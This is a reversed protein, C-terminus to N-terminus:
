DVFPGWAASSISGSSTPIIQQNTGDVNVLALNSGSVYLIQVGNASFSPSLDNPGRTLLQDGGGGLNTLAISYAGGRMSSNVLKLGDPSIAGSVNQSGNFTIRSAGGGGLGARYIQPSGGRDSTFIIGSGNPFFYPETDIEPSDTIQRASDGGNASILFINSLGSRSLAVALQSGDPSWAPASNNGHFNAAVTRGGTALNQVYVVPKGTEFSVYALKQGDPSWKPSIISSNSSAVVQAGQGDADAVYLQNGAVYAVRTSFIGRVGTQNEYIADAVRHAQRRLNSGTVSKSEITSQQTPDVLGYNVTTGTSSGYALPTAIQLANIAEWNPTGASDSTVAEVRNVEFEGSRTLDAAVIDAIEKGNPGAFDAVTIPFKFNEQGSSQLPVYLQAQAAGIGLSLAVSTVLSGVLRYATSRLRNTSRPFLASTM